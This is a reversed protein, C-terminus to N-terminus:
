KQYGCDKCTRSSLPNTKGCEPCRWTNGDYKVTSQAISSLNNISSVSGTNKCNDQSALQNIAYTQNEFEDDRSKLMLTIAFLMLGSAIMIGKFAMVGSVWGATLSAEMQYNYADGGVYEVGNEGWEADYSYSSVHINKDPIPFLLGTGFMAISILISILFSKKVIIGGHIKVAQAYCGFHSISETNNKNIISYLTRKTLEILILVFM